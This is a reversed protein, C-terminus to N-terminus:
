VVMCQNARFTIDDFDMIAVTSSDMPMLNDFDPDDTRAINSLRHKGFRTNAFGNSAGLSGIDLVSALVSPLDPSISEAFGVMTKTSLNWFEIRALDAKWLAKYFYLANPTLTDAVNLYTYATEGILLTWEGSATKHFLRLVNSGTSINFVMNNGSGQRKSIDTIEMIGEITGHEVPLGMRPVLEGTPLNWTTACTGLELQLSDAYFTTAQTTLTTVAMRTYVGTLGFTRTASYRTWIDTLTIETITSGVLASGSTYEYLTLKITGSGKLWVSATYSLSATVPLLSALLFGESAVNGPTIVKLSANGYKYTTTDRILTETGANKLFGTLGQEVSAQNVTLLNTALVPMTLSEAARPSGPMCFSTPYAKQELQLGDAYFTINQATGSTTIIRILAREGTSGFARSVSYRTWTDTLTITSTYTLGVYVSAATYESIGLLVTGSGKFWVSATYTNSAVVSAFSTYFGENAVVGPTVTKLSANGYKFITTDRSLAASNVSNFGTLDTEVNAQNATLLNTAAEEVLAVAGGYIESELRLQNPMYLKGKTNYGTSARSFAFDAPLVQSVRSTSQRIM